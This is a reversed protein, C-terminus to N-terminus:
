RRLERTRFFGEMDPHHKMFLRAYYPTFINNIKVGGGFMDAEWRVRHLIADASYHKNGRARAELAFRTFLRYVDPNASHFRQFAPWSPKLRPTNRM